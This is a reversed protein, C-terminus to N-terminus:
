LLLKVLGPLRHLVTKFPTLSCPKAGKENIPFSVFFMKIIKLLRLLSCRNMSEKLPTCGPLIPVHVGSLHSVNSPLFPAAQQLTSRGQMKRELQLLQLM